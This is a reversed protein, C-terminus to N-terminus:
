LSGGLDEIVSEYRDANPSSALKAVVRDRHTAVTEHWLDLGSSRVPEPAPILELQSAGLVWAQGEIDIQAIDATLLRIIIGVQGILSKPLKEVSVVEVWDGIKFSPLAPVTQEIPVVYDLLGLQIM